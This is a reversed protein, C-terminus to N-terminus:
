IAAATDFMSIAFLNCRSETKPSRLSQPAKLVSKYLFMEKFQLLEM